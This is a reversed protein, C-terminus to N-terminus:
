QITGKLTTDEGIEDAVPVDNGQEPSIEEPAPKLQDGDDLQSAYRSKKSGPASSSSPAPKQNAPNATTSAPKDPISTDIKPAIPILLTGSPTPKDKSAAVACAPLTLVNTLLFTACVTVVVLRQVNFIHSIVRRCGRQEILMTTSVM